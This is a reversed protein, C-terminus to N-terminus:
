VKIKPRYQTRYPWPLRWHDQHHHPNYVISNPTNIIKTMMAKINKCHSEMRTLKLCYRYKRCYWWWWWWKKWATTDHLLFFNWNVTCPSAMWIREQIRFEICKPRLVGLLFLVMMLRQKLPVMLMEECFTPVRSPKTLGCCTLIPWAIVPLYFQPM